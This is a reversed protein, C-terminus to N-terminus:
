RSSHQHEVDLERQRARAVWLTAVTLVIMTVDLPTTLSHVVALPAVLSLTARAAVAIVVLLVFTRLCSRTPRREVLARALLLGGIAGLAVVAVVVGAELAGVAQAYGPVVISSSM